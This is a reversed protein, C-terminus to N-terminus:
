RAGSWARSAKASRLTATRGPGKPHSSHARLLWSCFRTSPAGPHQRQNIPRKGGTGSQLSPAGSSRTLAKGTRAAIAGQSSLWECAEDVLQRVAERRGPLAEFMV